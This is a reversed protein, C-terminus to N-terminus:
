YGRTYQLLKQNLHQDIQSMIARADDRESFHYQANYNVNGGAGGGAMLNLLKDQTLGGLVSEAANTTANNLVFERGAEGLEYLGPGAYGGAARKYAKNYADSYGKNWGSYDTGGAKSAGSNEAQRKKAEYEAILQYEKELNNKLDVYRRNYYTQMDTLKQSYDTQAQERQRQEAIAQEELERDYNLQQEELERGLATQLDALKEDNAIKADELKQQYDLQAQEREQQATTAAEALKDEREVAAESLAQEQKQKAKSFAVADQNRVADEADMEFSQRIDRLRKRYDTEISLREQAAKREIGARERSLDTAAQRQERSLDTAADAVDQGHKRNIDEVKQLNERAADERDQAGKEAIDLLKREFDLQADLRKRRDDSELDAIASNVKEIADTYDEKAKKAEETAEANAETAKTADNTTQVAETEAAVVEQYAGAFEEFNNKATTAAFGLKALPNDFGFPQAIFGAINALPSDSGKLKATLDDYATGGTKEQTVDAAEQFRRVEAFVDQWAKAGQTLKGVFADLASTLGGDTLLRGFEIQFDSWSSSLGQIQEAAGTASDGLGDIMKRGKDLAEATYAAQKEEATLEDVLKNHADAYKKYAEDSKIIIGLNNLVESSQRGIGNALDNISQGADQGMARGLTVAIKTLEAMEDETKVVNLLMAQNAAKMADMQGITGGSAQQMSEVIKKGSMGFKAALAETGAGLQDAQAAMMYSDSVFQKAQSTIGYAALYGVMTRFIAGTKEGESGIEQISYKGTKRLLALDQNLKLTAEDMEQISYKGSEFINKLADRIERKKAIADLKEEASKLKAELRDIASGAQTAGEEVKGFADSGTKGVQSLAEDVTMTGNRVASLSAQDVGFRVLARITKEGYGNM